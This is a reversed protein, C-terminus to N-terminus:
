KGGRRAGRPEGKAYDVLGRSLRVMVESNLSYYTMHGDKRVRLIGAALLKNLHHFLTGEDIALTTSMSGPTLGGVGVISLLHCVRLRTVNGLAAYARATVALTM